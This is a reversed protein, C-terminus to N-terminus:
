QPSLPHRCVIRGAIRDIGAVKALAMRHNGQNGIMVEGDRGVLLTPLPYPKGRADTTRFGERRFAEFMPDFRHRYHEAVAAITKHRGIHGDKALRRKYPDRFLDTEEWDAGGVFRQVMTRYKATEAFLRRREIDWDGGLEGALDASPSIRFRVEDPEIWHTEGVVLLSKTAMPLPSRQKTGM